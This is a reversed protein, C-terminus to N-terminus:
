VHIPIHHPPIYFPGRKAKGHSLFMDGVPQLAGPNVAPGLVRLVQQQAQEPLLAVYDWLAPRIEGESDTGESFPFTVSGLTPTVKVHKTCVPVRAASSRYLRKM